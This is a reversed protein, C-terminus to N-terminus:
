LLLGKLKERYEVQCKEPSFSTEIFNRANRMICREDINGLILNRIVSEYEQPNKCYFYEKGSEAPIGEIGIDNTLVPIGSSLAEIIKVKIGAGLVLPAVMCLSNEFFPVVSDVFGTVHIKESELDKLEKPPNGGLVVFRVDLDKLLPMVNDIFWKASLYNEPRAMAGFFLIDKYNSKRTCNCMNNFYPVLWSLKKREIGESILIEINDPNHPLVLACLELASLEKKKEWKYKQNWLYKKLGKYYKSKREFGVYTVDHESAVIQAKPCLKHIKKALLVIPTWELIIINPEFGEDLYEKLTSIIEIEDSNSLLNANANWPNLKSEINVLKKIISKSPSNWYIINHKIGKLENEVRDCEAYKGCSILRIDFEEHKSLEKFYYNFTQGGASSAFKVPAYMSIWLLKKKSM